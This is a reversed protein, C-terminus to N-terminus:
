VEWTLSTYCKGLVIPRKERIVLGSKTNRTVIIPCCALLSSLRSVIVAAKNDYDSGM